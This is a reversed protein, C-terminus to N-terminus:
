GRKRLKELNKKYVKKIYRPVQGDCLFTLEEFREVVYTTICVTKEENLVYAVGTDTLCKWRRSITDFYEFKITGFGIETAIFVYRELREKKLHESPKLMM